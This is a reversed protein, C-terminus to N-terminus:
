RGGSERDDDKNRLYQYLGIVTTLIGFITAVMAAGANSITTVITVDMLFFSWYTIIVMAWVLIARRFLKQENALCNFFKKLTNM